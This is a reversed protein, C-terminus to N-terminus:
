GLLYSVVASIASIGFMAPLIADTGTTALGPPASSVPASSPEDSPETYWVTVNTGEPDEETVDSRIHVYYTEGDNAMFSYTNAEDAECNTTNTQQPPFGECDQTNCQRFIGYDTLKDNNTCVNVTVEKGVGIIEYWIARRDSRPGCVGQNIYDYNAYSNNGTM